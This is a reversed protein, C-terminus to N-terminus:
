AAAIPSAAIKPNITSQQPAINICFRARGEVSRLGETTTTASRRGDLTASGIVGLTTASRRGEITSRRGEVIAAIEPSGLSTDATYVFHYLTM